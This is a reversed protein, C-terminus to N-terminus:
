VVAVRRMPHSAGTPKNRKQVGTDGTDEGQQPDHAGVSKARYKLVPLIMQMAHVLFLGREERQLPPKGYTM